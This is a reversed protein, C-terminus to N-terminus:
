VNDFRKYIERCRRAKNAKYGDAKWGANNHHIMITKDTVVPPLYTITDMPFLVERPFFINGNVNQPKGNMNVGYKKFIKALFFPQFYVNFEEKNSPLVVNDYMILISKLLDTNPVSGFAALDIAGQDFFCFFARNFLIIRPSKVMEVDMDLYIGGVRYITELRAYDTAYAWAECEVAKLLFPHKSCDYNDRNWEHINYDPCYKYWSEVCRKYEDPKEDKGFWFAHIEKPILENKENKLNFGYSSIREYNQIFPYCWCEVDDTLNMSDLQEFMDALYVFSTILVRCKKEQRLKNPSYVEYSKGFAEIKGVASNDIFYAIKEAGSTLNGMEMIRFIKGIGFIILKIDGCLLDNLSGNCCRM